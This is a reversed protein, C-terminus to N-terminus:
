RRGMRGQMGRMGRGMAGPNCNPGSGDRPGQRMGQGGRPCQGQKPCQGQPCDQKPAQAMALGAALILSMLIKM